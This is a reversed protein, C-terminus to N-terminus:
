AKYRNLNKPDLTVRHPPQLVEDYPSDELVLRGLFRFRCAKRHTKGNRLEM